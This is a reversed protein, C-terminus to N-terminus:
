PGAPLQPHFLRFTATIFALADLGRWVVTPGPHGDGKRGLFGGLKAVWRLAEGLSPPTDPPTTTHHHYCALAQWEAEAFFVTCPIEPVERGMKVLTMVRWAVVLDLALCAQLSHADALRRDELRCGSKLTRHFVEIQWRLAYWQLREYAEEQTHTPVTTLLLWEVAEQGPSPQPEVVYVAWLPLAPTRLRKPPQLDIAAYRLALAAVRGPRGGRPPIALSVTGAVPQTALHDWLPTLEEGAVVRRQTTANARILLDPGQPTQAAEQFLEYLDAERDAICILQTEPCLPQRAATRRYSTLWRLSEKEEIPREKRRQAQGLTAPDRAWVQIDVLGLPIGQPTFALTDHLKLGQAGDARTNIPGLGTTAPHADYNLSTTDQVVLVRPEAAIRGLTTAYHPQLLTPLDVHPNHFFRYAAKTQGADGQLALPLPATPHDGVAQALRRLRTRLRGDPFDVQGFEQEAWSAAPDPDVPALRRPPRTCLPAQWDTALPLVYLAKAGVTGDQRGRGATVGLRQWNAARYVTGAYRSEDVFTELLLPTVGYRAPWDAVVRAAALALVHSGLNPVEITPLLLFRSNALVRPLNARRAAADWGIWQDRAAVQWAAASFALAGLWGVVPSHILYRQQAGCLRGGGLPHYTALLRQWLASQTADDVAVLEIRGLAALPGSFSPAAWPLDAAAPCGRPPYGRVPPLEILGRRELEVLAKRGSVEQVRGHAGRWDLWDCLRRSLASRSVDPEAAVVGRLREIIGSTFTQGFLRM